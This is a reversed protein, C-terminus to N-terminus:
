VIHLKICTFASNYFSTMRQTRAPDVGYFQLNM